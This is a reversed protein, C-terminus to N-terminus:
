DEGNDWVENAGPHRSPNKDDCDWGEIKKDDDPAVCYGDADEDVCEHGNRATAKKPPDAFATMAFLCLVFSSISSFFSKM